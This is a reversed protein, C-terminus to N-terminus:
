RTGPVQSSPVEGGDRSDPVAVRRAKAWSAHASTDHKMGKSLSFLTHNIVETNKTSGSHRAMNWVAAAGRAPTGSLPRFVSCLRLGAPVSMCPTPFETQGKLARAPGGNRVCSSGCSANPQKLSSPPPQAKSTVKKEPFLSIPCLPSLPYCHWPRLM